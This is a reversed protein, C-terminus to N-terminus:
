YLFNLIHSLRSEESIFGYYAMDNGERVTLIELLFYTLHTSLCLHESFGRM